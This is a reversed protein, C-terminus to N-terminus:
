LAMGIQKTTNSGPDFFGSIVREAKNFERIAIGYITWLSSETSINGYFNTNLDTDFLDTVRVFRTSFEDRASAGGGNHARHISAKYWLPLAVNVRLSLGLARKMCDEYLLTMMRDIFTGSKLIASYYLTGTLSGLAYRVQVHSIVM